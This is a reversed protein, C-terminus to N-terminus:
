SVRYCRYYIWHIRLFCGLLYIFYWTYPWNFISKEEDNSSLYVTSLTLYNNQDELYVYSLNDNSLYNVESDFTDDKKVPYAIYLLIILLALTTVSLKKVVYRRIM